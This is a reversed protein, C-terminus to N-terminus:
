PIGSAISAIRVPLLRTCGRTATPAQDRDGRRDRDGDDAAAPQEAAGHDERNGVEDV